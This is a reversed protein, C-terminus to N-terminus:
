SWILSTRDVARKLEAIRDRPLWPCGCYAIPMDAPGM